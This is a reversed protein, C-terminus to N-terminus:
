AVEAPEHREHEPVDGERALAFPVPEGAISVIRFAIRLRRRAKAVKRRGAPADRVVLGSQPQVRHFAPQPPLRQLPDQRRMELPPLESVRFRIIEKSRRRFHGAAIETSEEILHVSARIDEIVAHLREGSHTLAGLEARVHDYAPVPLCGKRYLDQHRELVSLTYRFM